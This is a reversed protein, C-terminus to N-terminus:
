WAGQNPCTVAIRPHARTADRRRALSSPSFLRSFGLLPASSVAVGLRIVFEIESRSFFDLFSGHFLRFASMLPAFSPFLRLWGHMPSIVGDLALLGFVLQLCGVRVLAFVSQLYGLRNPYAPDVSPWASSFAVPSAGVGCCCPLQSPGHSCVLFLTVM